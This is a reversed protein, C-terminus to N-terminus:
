LRRYAARECSTSPPPALDDAGNAIDCNIGRRESPSGDAALGGVPDRVRSSPTWRGRRRDGSGVNEFTPASSASSGRRFLIIGSSRVQPPPAEALPVRPRSQGPQASPGASRSPHHRNDLHAVDVQPVPRYRVTAPAKVWRPDARRLSVRRSVPCCAPRQLTLFVAVPSRRSNALAPGAHREHSYPMVQLLGGTALAQGIHWIPMSAIRIRYQVGYIRMRLIPEATPFGTSRSRHALANPADAPAGESRSANKFRLGTWSARFSLSCLHFSRM